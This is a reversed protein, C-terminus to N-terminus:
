PTSLLRFFVTGKTVDIPVTVPSTAGGPYDVWNTTLGVALSNTQAQLKLSGTWSFRLSNGTESFTLTPPGVVSTVTISGDTELNNSWTAGAGTVTIAAGSTVPRSFLTFKDGAALAPGLNVVTLTGAGINALEGGVVVLDNAPSLSKNVEIALNGGITLDANITLTGITAIAAGPALTTEPQLTVAGAFTGIGGLTGTNVTTLPASHDGNILLTGENVTTSGNYTNSATLTLTGSGLKVLSGGGSIVGGFTSSDSRNFILQSNNVIPGPGVSGSTGGAGVQLTGGNITTGGPYTGTGTLTLIGSGQQVVAGANQVVAGGQGLVVGGVINGSFTLDDSRNFTLTRATDTVLSNTFLVHGVIWGNNGGDGVIVAGGRITTGGTYTNNGTLTVDGPNPNNIDKVMSGTGSIVGNIILAANDQRVFILTGHNTIDGSISGQNGEAVQLQAGADITTGGTYTNNGILKLLGSGRKILGGTGSIVSGANM